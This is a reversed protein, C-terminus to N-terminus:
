VLVTKVTYIFNDYDVWHAWNLWIYTKNSSIGLILRVKIIMKNHLSISSKYACIKIDVSIVLFSLFFM